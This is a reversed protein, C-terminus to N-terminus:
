CTAPFSRDASLRKRALLLTALIMVFFQLPVVFLRAYSSYVFAQMVNEHGLSRFVLAPLSESFATVLLALACLAVCCAILGGPRRLWPGFRASIRGGNRFILWWCLGISAAFAFIRVLTFVSFALPLGDRWPHEITRWGYAFGNRAISDILRSTLGWVQIGILMWLLRDLWVSQGNVKSYEKELANTKGIRGVAVMFAEDESLGGVHLKAVSDRLHLELEDLNESRFAPSQVLKDRWQQIARNLVFLTSNKM